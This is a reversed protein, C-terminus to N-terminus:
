KEGDPLEERALSLMAERIKEVTGRHMDLADGRMLRYFSEHGRHDGNVLRYSIAAITVQPHKEIFHLVAHRVRYGSVM